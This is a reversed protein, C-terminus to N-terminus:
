LNEEVFNAIEAFSAKQGDNMKVLTEYDYPELGFDSLAAYPARTQPFVDEGPRLIDNRTTAYGAVAAAVGICCFSVAKGTEDKENLIFRCQAYEGSRLAAVWKTKFEPNLM